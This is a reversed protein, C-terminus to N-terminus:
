QPQGPFPVPQASGPQQPAPVIMGPVSSGAPVQTTPAGPFTTAPPPLAAGGPQPFVPRGQAAPAPMVSPMPLPGGTVPPPPIAFVPPRGQAPVPPFARDDDQDDFVPRPPLSPTPQAFAPGSAAAVPAAPAVTTPMVVIRDFVSANAIAVVRPAAMYGSVARLLIDLAQQESVDTLELTLPGGPIREVNVIKTQGVRAWEALIQRVTADKAAITVHGNRITVRVEADATSTSVLVALAGLAFALKRM